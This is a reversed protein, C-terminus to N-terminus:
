LLYYFINSFYWVLDAPNKIVVYGDIPYYAYALDRIYSYGMFNDLLNEWTNSDEMYVLTGSEHVKKM